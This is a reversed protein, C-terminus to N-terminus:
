GGCGCIRRCPSKSSASDNPVGYYIICLTTLNDLNATDVVGVKGDGNVDFTPVTPTLGHYIIISPDVASCGSSNRMLAGCGTSKAAELTIGQSGGSWGSMWLAVIGLLVLLAIAIVILANIPLEIGKM